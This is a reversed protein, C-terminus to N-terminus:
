SGTPLAREAQEHKKEKNLDAGRTVVCKGPRTYAPAKAKRGRLYINDFAGTTLRNSPQLRM